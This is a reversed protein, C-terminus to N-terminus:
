FMYYSYQVSTNFNFVRSFYQQLNKCPFKLLVWAKRNGTKRKTDFKRVPTNNRMM